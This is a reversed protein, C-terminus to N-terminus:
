EAGVAVCEAISVLPTTGISRGDVSVGFRDGPCFDDTVQITVAGSSTYNLQTQSGVGGFSFATWGGGVTVAQFAGPAAARATADPLAAGNLEATTPDDTQAGAVRPVNLIGVSLVIAVFLGCWVRVLARM